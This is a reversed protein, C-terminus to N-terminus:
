QTVFQWTKRRKASTKQFNVPRFRHKRSFFGFKLCIISVFKRCFDTIKPCFSTPIRNKLLIKTWSPQNKGSNVNIRYKRFIRWHKQAMTLIEFCVGAFIRYKEHFSTSIPSKIWYKPWFPKNQIVAGDLPM